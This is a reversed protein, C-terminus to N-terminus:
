RNGSKVGTLEERGKTNKRVGGGGGEAVVNKVLPHIVAGWKTKGLKRDKSRKRRIERNKKEGGGRSKKEESRKRWGV